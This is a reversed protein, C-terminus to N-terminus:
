CRGEVVGGVAWKGGSSVKAYAHFKCKCSNTIGDYLTRVRAHMTGRADVRGTGAALAKGRSTYVIMGFTKGGLPESHIVWDHGLTSICHAILQPRSLFQARGAGGESLLRRDVFVAMSHKPTLAFSFGSTDAFTKGWEARSQRQEIAHAERLRARINVIRRRM